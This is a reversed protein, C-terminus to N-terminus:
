GNHISGHCALLSRSINFCTYCRGGITLGFHLLVVM